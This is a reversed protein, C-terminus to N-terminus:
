EDGDNDYKSAWDEASVVQVKYKKLCVSAVMEKPDDWSERQEVGQVIGTVIFHVQDGVALGRVEEANKHFDM